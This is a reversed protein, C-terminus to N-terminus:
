GVPRLVRRLLCAGAVVQDWGPRPWCYELALPGSYGSSRIHRLLAASDRVGEDVPCTGGDASAGAIHIHGILPRLRDFQAIATATSPDPGMVQFLLCLNPMAVEDILREATAPTDALTWRHTEVALVLDPAEVALWRLAAVGQAWQGASATSGAIGAPGSDTFTRLHSCGLVRAYRVFRRATERSEAAAEPSRVFSLYPAVSLLRLGLSAAQSRLSRLELASKGDIHGGFLEVAEFGAAAAQPLVLEIPTDRAALSCLTIPGVGTVAETNSGPSTM